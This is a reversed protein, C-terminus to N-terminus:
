RLTFMLIKQLQFFMNCKRCYLENKNYIANTREICLFVKGRLKLLKLKWKIGVAAIFALTVALPFVAISALILLLGYMRRELLRSITVEHSKTIFNDHVIILRSSSM